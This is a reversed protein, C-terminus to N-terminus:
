YTQHKRELVAPLVTCTIETFPTFITVHQSGAQTSAVGASGAGAGEGDRRVLLDTGEKNGCGHPQTTPSCHTTYGRFRKGRQTSRWSRRASHCLLHWEATCTGPHSRQANRHSTLASLLETFETDATMHDTPTWNFFFFFFVCIKWM